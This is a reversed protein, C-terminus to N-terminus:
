HYPPYYARITYLTQLLTLLIVFSATLFAIFSWRNRFYDRKLDKISRNWRSWAISIYGKMRYWSWFPIQYNEVEECLDRFYFRESYIATCLKKFFVSLDTFNRPNHLIGLRELLKADEESGILTDMLIVYSTIVERGSRTQELAILNRLLTVTTKDIVISPIFIKGEDFKIDVISASDSKHYCIIQFGAQILEAACRKFGWKGYTLQLPLEWSTLNCVQCLVDLLHSFSTADNIYSDLESVNIRLMPIRHFFCLVHQRLSLGQTGISIRKSSPMLDFLQQLIIYPIQNELRLLDYTLTNMMTYNGSLLEFRVQEEDTSIIHQEHFKKISMVNYRYFLELIFCGDVLLMEVLQHKNLNIDEAYWARAEEELKSVVECCKNLALTQASNDDYEGALENIQINEMDTRIVVRDLYALMYRWKLEETARLEPKNLHFPGICVVQPTYAAPLTALLKPPVRYTSSDQPRRRLIGLTTNVSQVWESYKEEDSSYNKTIRAKFSSTPQMEVTDQMFNMLTM